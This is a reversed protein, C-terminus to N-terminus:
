ENDQNEVAQLQPVAAAQAEQVQRQITVYTDLVSKLPQEALCKIIVNVNEESLTFNM